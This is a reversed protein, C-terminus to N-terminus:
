GVVKRRSRLFAGSGVLLGLALLSGPEPVATLAGATLNIFQGTPSGSFNIGGETATYNISWRNLGSVFSDFNKLEVAGAGSGFFFDGGLTGAQYNILSLTTGTVFPTLPDGLNNLTLYVKHGTTSDLAVAGSITLLNGTVSTSNVEYGFTSGNTMSVTGSNSITGNGKLTKGDGVTLDGLALTGQSITASGSYNVASGSLTLTGAGEKVLTGSGSIASSITNNFGTPTNIYAEHTLSIQGLGSVLNGTVGATLRGNDFNLRGDSNKLYVGTAFNTTTGVIATSIGTGDGLNFSSTTGALVIASSGTPLATAGTPVTLTGTNVMNLTGGSYVDLHNSTGGNTTTSGSSVGGITLPLGTHIFNMTSAGTISIYNSNANAVEGVGIRRSTGSGGFNYTGGAEVRISNTNSGSTQGIEFFQNSGGSTSFSSLNGTVLEYNSSGGNTGIGVRGGNIVIGGSSVSVYNNNGASGVELYSGATNRNLTSYNGSGDSGSVLVSNGDAGSATGISLTRTGSGTGTDYVYAGGQISLSNTASSTGVMIQASSGAMSLTPAAFTGPASIIASNGGFTSGGVSFRSNSANIVLRDTGGVSFTNNTSSAGVYVFGTNAIGATGNLTAVASVGTAGIVIQDSTITGSIFAADASGTFRAINGAAAWPTGTLGYWNTATTDWTGSSGGTWTGSPMAAQASTAAILASIAAALLGLSSAPSKPKM